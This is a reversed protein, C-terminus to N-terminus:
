RKKCILTVSSRGQSWVKATLEAQPQFDVPEIDWCEFKVIGKFKENDEANYLKITNSLIEISNETCVAQVEPAHCCQRLRREADM